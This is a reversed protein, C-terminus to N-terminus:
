RNLYKRQKVMKFKMPKVDRYRVGPPTVIYAAHEKNKTGITKEYDIYAAVDAQTVNLLLDTGGELILSLTSPIVTVQINKPLNVVKVPIEVMPKEMLKQVDVFLKTQNNILTVHKQKPPVLKIKKELDRKVNEYSYKETFIQSVLEIESQPGKLTISDPDLAMEDVVAFGPATKIKCQHIIPVKKSVLKKIVVQIDKPKVINLVSINNKRLMRVNDKDLTFKVTGDLDAIDLNYSVDRRLLLSFLTRGKGWFTIEVQKPIDNLIIHEESLNIIRLPVSLSYRYNDETKVFFWVLIAL